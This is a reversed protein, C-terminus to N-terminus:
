SPAAVGCAIMRWGSHLVLDNAFPRRVTQTTEGDTITCWEMDAYGQVPGTTYESDYNISFQTM